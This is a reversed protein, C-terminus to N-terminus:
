STLYDILYIAKLCLSFHLANRGLTSHIWMEKNQDNSVGRGFVLKYRKLDLQMYLITKELTFCVYFCTNYKINRGNKGEKEVGVNSLCRPKQKTKNKISVLLSITANASILLGKQVFM